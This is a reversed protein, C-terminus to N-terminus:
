AALMNPAVPHPFKEQGLTKTKDLAVIVAIRYFRPVRM